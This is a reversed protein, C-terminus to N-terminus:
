LMPPDDTIQPDLIGKQAVRFLNSRHGKFGSKALEPALAGQSLIQAALNGSLLRDLAGSDVPHLQGFLLM